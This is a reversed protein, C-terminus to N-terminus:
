SLPARQERIQRLAEAAQLFASTRELGRNRRGYSSCRPNTSLFSLRWKHPAESTQGKIGILEKLTGSWGSGKAPWCVAAGFTLAAWGQNHLLSGSGPRRAGSVALWANQWPAEETPRWTQTM